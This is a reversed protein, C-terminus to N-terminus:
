SHGGFLKILGTIGGTAAAAIAAAAGLVKLKDKELVTVRGSKPNDLDEIRENASKRFIQEDLLHNALSDTTKQVALLLTTQVKDQEDLKDFVKQFATTSIALNQQAVLRLTDLAQEIVTPKAMPLELHPPAM